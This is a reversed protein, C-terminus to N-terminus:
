NSGERLPTSRLAPDAADETRRNATLRNAHAVLENHIQWAERHAAKPDTRATSALAIRLYDLAAAVIHGPTSAKAKADNLRNLAGAMQRETRRPKRGRASGLPTVSAVTM